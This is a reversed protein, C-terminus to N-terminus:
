ISDRIDMLIRPFITAWIGHDRHHTLMIGKTDHLEDMVHPNDVLSRRILDDMLGLNWDEAVKTGKRGIHKSGGVWTRKYVVDDYAGSKFTQYAHEVSQFTRGKITFLRPALNSLIDHDTGWWIDRTRHM